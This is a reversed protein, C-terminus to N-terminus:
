NLVRCVRKHNMSILVNQSIEEILYNGTEDVNKPRFEQSINEESM